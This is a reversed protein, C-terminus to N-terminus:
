PIIDTILQAYGAFVAPRADFAMEMEGRFGTVNYDWRTGAIDSTDVRYSQGFFLKFKAWDAVVLNDITSATGKIDLAADPFVPIGFPTILTGARIATPGNAPAFFFGANDTGQGLMTWYSSAAMVAGNATVGRAGLAGAADAISRAISGALTTASATFSTTFTSPSNALATMFGYPQSSGSGQSIYESAGQAFAAALEAIVDREAAGRSQRLFQNGIDHIKALTYMTATYGNYALDVNTKETGFAIVAAASRRASRFPLDIAPATVGNVVTMVQTYINAAAAPVILEDVIANPIIWGGTADSTGLAAKGWADQRGSFGDLKAKAAGYVEPDRSTMDILSGIFDGPQYGNSAMRGGSFAGAKSPARTQALAAKIEAVEAMAREHDEAVKAKAFEAQLETLVKAQEQREANLNHWRQTDEDKAKVMESALEEIRFAAKGIADMLRTQPTETGAVAQQIHDLAM